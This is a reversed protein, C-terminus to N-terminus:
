FENVLRNWDEYSNIRDQTAKPNKKIVQMEQEMGALMDLGILLGNVPDSWNIPTNCSWGYLAEFLSM